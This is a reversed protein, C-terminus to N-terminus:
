GLTAALTSEIHRVITQDLSGVAPAVSPVSRQESDVAVSPTASVVSPAAGLAHAIELRRGNGLIAAREIVAALEPVNGPLPHSLVL